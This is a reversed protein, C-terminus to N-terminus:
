RHRAVDVNEAAVCTTVVPLVLRVHVVFGITVLQSVIRELVLALEVIRVKKQEESDHAERVEAVCVEPEVAALQALDEVM